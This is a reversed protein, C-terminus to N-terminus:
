RRAELRVRPDVAAVMLDALLNALVVVAAFLFGGGMIIPYDRQLIADVMLKGMGPWAFVAEVFVTGGLLLPIQLGLLAVVPLIGNPLAHGWVVRRESLGRARAGRVFDQNLAEIMSARAFRAVGSGLILVLTLTPLFLHLLRDWFVGLPGAGELAVSAMGSAPLHVGWGWAAAPLYSFVLVLMVALWFSPISYLTLTIGSVVRDAPSGVRTAQLAGVTVGLGFSLVLALGSLLLTNPIIERFVEAVPRRYTYSVGLDGRVVASIWKTYQEPLPRDLALSSRLRDMAEPTAGPSSLSTLPDGPAARILFFLLTAVGLVLLVAVLARRAVRIALRGVETV